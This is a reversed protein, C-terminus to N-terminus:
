DGAQLATAARSTEGKEGRRLVSAEAREPAFLEVLRRFLDRAAPSNDKSVSCVYVDLTVCRLEPWTHVCVHSEELLVVGTVGGPAADTGFQHFTSAVVTLGVACCESVLLHELVGCSRLLADTCKCQDLDGVLHIGKM